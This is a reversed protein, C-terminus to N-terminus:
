GALAEDAKVVNVPHALNNMRVELRFINDDAEPVLFYGLNLLGSLERSGFHAFVVM